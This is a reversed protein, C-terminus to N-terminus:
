ERRTGTPSSDLPIRRVFLPIPPGWMKGVDHQSGMYDHNVIYEERHSQCWARVLAVAAADDGPLEGLFQFSRRLTSALSRQAGSRTARDFGDCLVIIPDPESTAFVLYEELPSWYVYEPGAFALTDILTDRERRDVSRDILSSVVLHAFMSSADQERQAVAFALMARRDRTSCQEDIFRRVESAQLEGIGNDIRTKPLRSQWRVFEAEVISPSGSCDCERLGTRLEAPVNEWLHSSDITRTDNCAGLSLFAIGCATTMTGGLTDRITM